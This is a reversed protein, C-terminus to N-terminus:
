PASSTFQADRSLDWRRGDAYEGLVVLRQEARPGDLNVKEPFVTLARPAVSPPVAKPVPKTDKPSDPTDAGWTPTRVFVLLAAASVFCRLATRPQMRRDGRSLQCAPRRGTTSPHSGRGARCCPLFRDPPM